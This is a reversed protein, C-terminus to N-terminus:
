APLVSPPKDNLARANRPTPMPPPNSSPREPAICRAGSNRSIRAAIMGMEDNIEWMRHRLVEFTVVDIKPRSSM